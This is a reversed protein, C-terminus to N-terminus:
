VGGHGSGGHAEHSRQHLVGGLLAVILSSLIQRPRVLAREAVLGEVAQLVLRAVDSSVCSLLGM